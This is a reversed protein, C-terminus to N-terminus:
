GPPEEGVLQREAARVRDRKLFTARARATITLGQMLEARLYYLPGRVRSVAATVEAPQDPRVPGLFRVTLEATVAVIGKSFLCNTMASDLIASVVGGHLTESYSQLPLGSAFVARVSGDDQAQFALKFGIPNQQGCFLCDAHASQGTAELVSQADQTGHKPIHGDTFSESVLTGGREM